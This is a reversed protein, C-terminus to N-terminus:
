PSVETPLFATWLSVWSSEGHVQEVYRRGAQSLAGIVGERLAQVKQLIDEPDAIHATWPGWVKVQREEAVRLLLRGAQDGYAAHVYENMPPADTTMLVVGRAMAELMALGLGEFRSPQVSVDFGDYLDAPNSVVGMVRAGGPADTLPRQSRVTILKSDQVLVQRIEPWGKRQHVGGWGNTFLFNNAQVRPVFPLEDLDLPAPIYTVKDRVLAQQRLFELCWHTRAVVLDADAFWAKNPHFWEPNCLLVTRIGRARAKGFLTDPITREVAVVADLGDLFADAVEETPPTDRIDGERLGEKDTGLQPHNVRLWRTFPLKNWMRRNEYGLGTACSFGVLGVNM